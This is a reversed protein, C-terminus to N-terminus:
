VKKQGSFNDTINGMKVRHSQGELCVNIKDIKGAQCDKNPVVSPIM